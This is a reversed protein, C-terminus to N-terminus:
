GIVEIPISTGRGPIGGFRMKEGKKAGDIRRLMRGWEGREWASGILIKRIGSHQNAIIFRDGDVKIGILVLADQADESSVLDVQGAVILILTAVNRDVLGKGNVNLKLIHELIRNLLNRQDSTQQLAKSESLDQERVIRLAEDPTIVDDSFLSYAGALLTGIQDGLRRSGLEGSAVVAFIRANERIKPIMAVARARLGSVYEDTFTAAVQKRFEEFLEDREKQQEPTLPDLHLGLITIRSKDADQYASVHVSSLLFCSRIKYDKATGDASGKIIAGGTESSSQRMLALVNAIRAQGRQEEGEAEDFIVPRSDHGLTQRLGAETTEGMAYLAMNGLVPRIISDMFFSKGSGAAATIWAHPRWDLAGCIISVVCWGAALRADHEGRDWSLRKIMDLFRRAEEVKLPNSIAIDLPKKLEYIYRGQTAQQIPVAKGHILLKDGTHLVAGSGEDWWAGCGRVRSPDYIGFKHQEEILKSKALQWSVVNDIAFERSWYRLPALRLLQSDNHDQSRLGVVQRGHPLYYYTGQNYGLLQFESQEIKNKVLSAIKIWKRKRECEKSEAKIRRAEEAVLKRLVTISCQTHKAIERISEECEIPPVSALSRVFKDMLERRIDLAAASWETKFVDLESEESAEVSLSEPVGLEKHLGDLVRGADPLATAQDPQLESSM